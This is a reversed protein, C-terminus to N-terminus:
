GAGGHHILVASRGPGGLVNGQDTWGPQTHRQDELTPSRISAISRQNFHPFFAMTDNENRGGCRVLSFGRHQPLGIAGRENHPIHPPCSV